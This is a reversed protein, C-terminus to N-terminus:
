RSRQDSKDRAEKAFEEIARLGAISGMVFKFQSMDTFNNFALADKLREIEANIIKKLESEFLSQQTQM